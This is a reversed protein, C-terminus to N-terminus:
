RKTRTAGFLNYGAPGTGRRISTFYVTCGDASVSTPRDEDQTNVGEVAVAPGFPETKASRRAVYIDRDSGGPAMAFYITLEDETVAPSSHEIGSPLGLVKVPLTWGAPTKRASRYITSAGERNSSFYIVAGSAPLLYPERDEAGGNLDPAPSPATWTGDANRLAMWIDYSGATGPRNSEFYIETENPTVTPRKDEGSASLTPLLQLAAGSPIPDTRAQRRAVFLDSEGGAIPGKSVYFALGDASVRMASEDADTSLAVVEPAGFPADSDCADATPLGGEGQADPQGADQAASGDIPQREAAEFRTCGLTWALALLSRRM